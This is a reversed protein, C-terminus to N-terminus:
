EHNQIGGKDQAKINRAAEQKKQEQYCYEIKKEIEDIRGLVGKFSLAIIMSTGIVVLIVMLCGSFASALFETLADMDILTGEVDEDVVEPTVEDDINDQQYEKV